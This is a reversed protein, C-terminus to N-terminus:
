GALERSRETAAVVAEIVGSRLGAAELERVGAITTGAPSCVADKLQAPSGKELVWKAAGLATQAALRQAVPRPLGAAVGGDSLAEIFLAAFAPGSGSLGTVADLLKEPLLEAVGLAGFWQGVLAKEAESVLENAAYGFAGETVECCVNPMARVIAAEAGLMEQLRKLTVGAMISIALAGPKRQAAVAALAAASDQPKVAVLIVEAAAVQAPDATVQVGPCSAALAELAAPQVDTAIIQEPKLVQRAVLGRVLAGGMKGAGLLGLVYGSTDM